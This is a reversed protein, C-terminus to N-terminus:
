GHARTSGVRGEDLGIGTGFVATLVRYLVALGAAWTANLTAIGGVAAATFGEGSGLILSTGFLVSQHVVLAAAFGVVWRALEPRDGIRALAAGAAAAAAIAAVGLAVGWALSNADVPYALLGYGIAQNALWVGAVTALAMRLPLTMAAVAALAALSTACAFVLSGTASAAVLFAAWPAAFRGPANTTQDHGM